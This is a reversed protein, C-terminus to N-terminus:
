KRNAKRSASAAKNAARRKAKDSPTGKGTRVPQPSLIMKGMATGFRAIQQISPHM